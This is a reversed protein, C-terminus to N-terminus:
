IMMSYINIPVGSKNEHIRWELNYEGEREKKRRKKGDRM